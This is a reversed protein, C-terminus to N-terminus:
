VHTTDNVVGGGRVICQNKKIAVMLEAVRNGALPKEGAEDLIDIEEFLPLLIM